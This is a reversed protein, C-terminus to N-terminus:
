DFVIGTTTNQNLKWITEDESNTILNLNFNGPYYGVQTQNVRWATRDSSNISARSSAQDANGAFMAFVGAVVEKQGFRFLPAYSDAVTFDHELYLGAGSGQVTATALVPLHNRHEIVIYYTEGADLTVDNAFSGEPFTVEGNEHLWGAGTWVDADPTRSGARVTVLVWDVVHGPYATQGAFDGYATGDTATFSWPAVGYPHGAPTTTAFQVATPLGALQNNQGPLM